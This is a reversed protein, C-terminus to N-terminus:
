KMAVSWAWPARLGQLIVRMLLYHCFDKIWAGSILAQDAVGDLLVADRRSGDLAIELTKETGNTQYIFLCWCWLEFADIKRREAKKITWSECGYMVVPFIMTQSSLAKNAFYYRQKKIHQRPQDYPSPLPM